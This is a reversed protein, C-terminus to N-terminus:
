RKCARPTFLAPICHLAASSVRHRGARARARAPGAPPPPRGGGSLCLLPSVDVAADAAAAERRCRGKGEVRRTRSRMTMFLEAASPQRGPLHPPLSPAHPASPNLLLSLFDRTCALPRMAIPRAHARAHGRAQM